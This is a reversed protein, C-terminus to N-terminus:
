YKEKFVAPAYFALGLAVYMLGALFRIILSVSRILSPEIDYLLRLHTFYFFTASYFFLIVTVIWFYPISLLNKEEYKTLNFVDLFFNIALLILTLSGVAYSYNHFGLHLPQFFVSFITGFLVFFLVLMSIRKKVKPDDSILYFFYMFLCTELYVFLVNYLLSNNYRFSSTIEGIIEIVLGLLLVITILVHVKKYAQNRNNVFFYLLSFILSLFIFFIYTYM